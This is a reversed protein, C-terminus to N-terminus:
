KEVAAPEEEMTAYMLEALRYAGSELTAVITDLEEFTADEILEKITTIDAILDNREQDDMLGGFEELSRETSYLLGQAEVRRQTIEKTLQDQEENAKAEAILRNIDEESLGGDAVINVSQERGSAQDKASATVIGNEDINFTVEIRPVGRPAPPIGSLEFVALSKNDEAMAREGQLV